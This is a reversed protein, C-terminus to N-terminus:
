SPTKKCCNKKRSFLKKLLGGNKKKSPVIALSGVAVIDEDAPNQNKNPSRVDEPPEIANNASFAPHPNGDLILEKTNPAKRDRSDNDEDIMKDLLSTRRGLNQKPNAVTDTSSYTTVPIVNEFLAADRPTALAKLQKGLNLITEQCEAM